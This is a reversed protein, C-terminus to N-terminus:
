YGDPREMEFPFNLKEIADESMNRIPNGHIDHFDSINDAIFTQELCEGTEVHFVQRVKGPTYKYVIM